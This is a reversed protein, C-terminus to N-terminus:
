LASAASTAVALIGALVAASKSAGVTELSPAASTANTPTGGSGGALPDTYGKPCIHNIERANRDQVPRSTSGSPSAITDYQCTEPEIYNLVLGSLDNYQAISISLPKSAVNWEVIELCPPTTLGGDYNYFTSGEPILDYIQLQSNPSGIVTRNESSWWHIPASMNCALATRDAVADFGSLINDFKREDEFSSAEIFIGLVALRAPDSGKLQHVIHLEAGYRGGDMTHESNMHLHFQLLEFVGDVGPVQM